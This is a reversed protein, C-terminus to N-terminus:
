GVLGSLLGVQLWILMVGVMGQRALPNLPIFTTALVGALPLGFLLGQLM